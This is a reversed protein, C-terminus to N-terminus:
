CSPPASSLVSLPSGTLQSWDRLVGACHEQEQGRLVGAYHDELQEQGRLVGDYHEQEQEQGRLVVDYHEQDGSDKM